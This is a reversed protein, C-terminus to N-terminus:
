RKWITMVRPQVYIKERYPYYTPHVYYPYPHVITVPAIPIRNIPLILPATIPVSTVCCPRNDFNFNFRVSTSHCHHRHKASLDPMTTLTLFLVFLVIYKIINMLVKNVIKNNLHFKIM